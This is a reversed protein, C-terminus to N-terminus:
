FVRRPEGGGAVFDIAKIALMYRNAVIPECNKCDRRDESPEREKTVLNGIPPHHQGCNHEKAQHSYVVRNQPFARGNLSTAMIVFASQGADFISPRTGAAKTLGQSGWVM